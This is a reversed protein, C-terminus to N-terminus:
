PTSKVKYRNELKLIKKYGKRNEKAKAKAEQFKSIYDETEVELNDICCEIVDENYGDFEILAAAAKAQEINDFLLIEDTYADVSGNYTKVVYITKSM